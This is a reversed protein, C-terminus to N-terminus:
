ILGILGTVGLGNPLRRAFDKSEINQYMVDTMM